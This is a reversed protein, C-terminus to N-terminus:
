VNASENCPGDIKPLLGIKTLAKYNVWSKDIKVFCKRNKEYTLEAKGQNVNTVM